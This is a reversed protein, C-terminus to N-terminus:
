VRIETMDDPRLGDAVLQRLAETAAMTQRAACWPKFSIRPLMPQGLQQTLVMLDPTVSYVNAFFGSELLKLDSTFGAQAALAPAIRDRRAHRGAARRPSNPAKPPGGRPAAMAPAPGPGHPTERTQVRLLRAAVAAVGFPAAVYTPWIGRYLVHAGGITGGL